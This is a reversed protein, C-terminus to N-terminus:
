MLLGFKFYCTAFISFRVPSDITLELVKEELETQKDYHHTDVWGGEDDPEIIKEHEENYEM